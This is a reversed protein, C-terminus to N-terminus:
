LMRQVVDGDVLMEELQTWVQLGYQVVPNSKWLGVLVEGGVVDELVVECVGPFAHVIAMALSTTGRKVMVDVCRLTLRRLNMFVVPPSARLMALFGSLASADLGALELERLTQFITLTFFMAYIDRQEDERQGEKEVRVCQLRSLTLSIVPSVPQDLLRRVYPIGGPILIKDLLIHRAASKQLLHFHNQYSLFTDILAVSHLQWRPFSSIRAHEVRLSILQPAVLSLDTPFTPQGVSQATQVVHLHSLPSHRSHPFVPSSLNYEMFVDFVATVILDSGFLRLSHCRGIHKYLATSIDEALQTITSSASLSPDDIMIDLSLPHTSSRSLFESTTSIIDDNNANFANCNLYVRDWLCQLGIAVYRWRACVSSLAICHLSFEKLSPLSCFEAPSQIDTSIPTSSPSPGPLACCLESASLEFILCLVETPLEQVAPMV